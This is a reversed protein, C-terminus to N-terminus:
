LYTVQIMYGKGRVTQIYRPYRSDEEIKKRLRTIQVDITRSGEEIDCLKELEERSVVQGSRRALVNLLKDEVGTLSVTNQGDDLAKYDPNYVWAGVKFSKEEKEYASVRKLIAKLRLLLERPEFPKALYDDAGSELGSIRDDAEGLATLLLVPIEDGAARLSQTYELGTEDPMMIDAIIADFELVEKIDRADAASEATSVVFDHERLYRSVLERIRDDDDIVLIHPLSEYDQAKDAEM